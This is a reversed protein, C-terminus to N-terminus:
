RREIWRGINRWHRFDAGDLPDDFEVTLSTLREPDDENWRADEEQIRWGRRAQVHLWTKIDRLLRDIQRDEYDIQCSRCPGWEAVGRLRPSLLAGVSM